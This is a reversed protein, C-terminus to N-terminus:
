APKEEGEPAEAETEAEETVAEAEVAAEEVIGTAEPAADEQVPEAEEIPPVEPEAEAVAEPARTQEATELAETGADAQVVDEASPTEAQAEVEAPPAVAEAAPGSVAEPEVPAEPKVEGLLELDIDEPAVDPLDVQRLVEVLRWRKTKSVPASEIIRVRDGQHADGNEDHVMYHRSRRITKKYLRHRIASAVAVVITKEMKDSVV